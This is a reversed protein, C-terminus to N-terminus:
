IDELNKLRICLQKYVNVDAINGENWTHTRIFGVNDLHDYIKRIDYGQHKLNNKIGLISNNDLCVFTLSQDVSSTNAIYDFFSKFYSFDMPNLSHGFFIVEKAEILCSEMRFGGGRLMNSKDMFSCVDNSIQNKYDYYGLVINSALDGHINFLEVQKNPHCNCLSLCNTYNFSYISIDYHSDNVVDRMFEYALSQQCPTTNEVIRILYQQLACRISDFEEALLSIPHNYNIAFSYIEEEIDFWNNKYFVSQLHAFLSKSQNSLDIYRFLNNQSLDRFENSKAFDTYSTRLLLNLDFGNGLVIAIKNM